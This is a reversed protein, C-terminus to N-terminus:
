PGGGGTASVKVAIQAARGGASATVAGPGVATARIKMTPGTNAGPTALAVTGNAVWTVTAPEPHGAADTVTASYTADADLALSTPGVLDVNGVSALVTITVSATMAGATVTLKATGAELAVAMVSAGATSSLSVVAPNSTQWTAASLDGGDAPASVTVTITQDVLPAASSVSVALGVDALEFTPTQLPCAALGLLLALGLARAAHRWFFAATAPGGPARTSPTRTV